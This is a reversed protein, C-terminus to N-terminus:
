ARDCGTERWKPDGLDRQATPSPKLSDTVWTSDAGTLAKM